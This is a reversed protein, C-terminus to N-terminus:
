LDGHEQNRYEDECIFQPPDTESTFYAQEGLEMTCGSRACEVSQQLIIPIWTTPKPRLLQDLSEPSIMVSPRGDSRIGLHAEDGPRLDANSLACRSNRNVTIKQWGIVAKGIEKARAARAAAEPDGVTRFEVVDDVIDNVLREANGSLNGVLNVTKELVERVFQSVSVDLREAHERIERDLDEPIRTNLVRDKRRPSM